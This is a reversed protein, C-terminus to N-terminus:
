NTGFYQYFGKKLRVSLILQRTVYFFGMGSLAINDGVIENFFRKTETNWAGSPVSRLVKMPKKSADNIGAASFSVMM